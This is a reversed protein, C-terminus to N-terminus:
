TPCPILVKKKKKSKRLESLESRKEKINKLLGILKDLSSVQAELGGRACLLAEYITKHLGEVLLREKNLAVLEATTESSLEVLMEATCKKSM